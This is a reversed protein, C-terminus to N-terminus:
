GGICADVSAAVIANRRRRNESYERDLRYIRANGSRWGSLRTNQSSPDSVRECTRAFRHITSRRRRIEGWDPVFGSKATATPVRNGNGIRLEQKGAM